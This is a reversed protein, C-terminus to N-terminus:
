NKLTEEASSDDDDEDDTYGSILEIKEVIKDKEGARLIKDIAEEASVVGIGKLVQPNNWINKRDEDITAALILASRYGVTNTKEPLKMGGYQKSVKYKTNRERCRQFESESLPHIRFTFMVKGDRAVEITSIDDVTNAAAIINKLIDNEMVLMTEPTKKETSEM